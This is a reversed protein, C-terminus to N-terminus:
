AAGHVHMCVCVSVRTCMGEILLFRESGDVQGTDEEYIYMNGLTKVIYNRDLNNVHLCVEFFLPCLM